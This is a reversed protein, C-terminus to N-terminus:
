GESQTGAVARESDRWARDLKTPKSCPVPFLPADRCKEAAEANALSDDWYKGTFRCGNYDDSQDSALWLAMKNMVGPDLGRNRVEGRGFRTNVAGGPGLCNVNVGTGATEEAWSLVQAEVASKSPGYAGAFAEHQSDANKNTVIIRGWGGELMAPIAAKAMLYPGVVNTVIVDRWGDPETEWFPVDRAGHYRQSKGANHFLVHLAGFTELTRAVVMQCDAWDTADAVLGLGTGAGGAEDIAAVAEALEAEIAERTEDSAPAATVTVGEAGAAAYTVAIERGMGRSAGAIIAVKGDLSIPDM